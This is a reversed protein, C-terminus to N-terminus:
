RLPGPGRRRRWLRVIADRLAILPVVLVFIARLALSLRTHRVPFLEGHDFQDQHNDIPAPALATGPTDLHSRSKRPPVVILVFLVNLLLWVSLLVLITLM